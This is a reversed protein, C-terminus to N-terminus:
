SPAIAGGMGVKVIAMVCRWKGNSVTESLMEGLKTNGGANRRAAKVTSRAREKSYGGGLNSGPGTGGM